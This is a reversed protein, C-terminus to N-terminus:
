PDGWSQCTRTAAFSRQGLQAGLCLARQVLTIVIRDFNFRELMQEESSRGARRLGGPGSSRSRWRRAPACGCWRRGLGSSGSSGGCGRQCGSSSRPCSPGRRIGGVFAEIVDEGVRGEVDRVPRALKQPLVPAPPEARRRHAVGVEGPNLVDVGVQRGRADTAHHHGVARHGRHRAALAIDAPDSSPPLSSPSGVPRPMPEPAKIVLREQPGTAGCTLPPGASPHQQEASSM